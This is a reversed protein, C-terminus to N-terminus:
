RGVLWGPATLLLVEQVLEYSVPCGFDYVLFTNCTSRIVNQYQQM